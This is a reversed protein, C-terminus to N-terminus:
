FPIKRKFNNSLGDTCAKLLFMLSLDYNASNFFRYVLNSFLFIFLGKINYKKMIFCKNRFFCYSKWDDKAYYVTGFPTKKLPMRDKPHYFISDVITRIIFGEKNIRAFFENEDGWIFLEKKPLGVKLLLERSFLVSNFFCAFGDFYSKGSLATTLENYRNFVQVKNNVTLYTDFALESMDEIGRIVSGLVIEHKAQNVLRELCDIEPYGDDDMCWVYNYQKEVAWRMGAEQGGGSGFNKQNIYHLTPNNLAEDALWNATEDSDGGNNVVLIKSVKHSQNVVSLYVRKLLQLRNFTVIVACINYIM